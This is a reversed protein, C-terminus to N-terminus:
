NVKGEPKDIAGLLTLAEMRTMLAVLNSSCELLVKAADRQLRLIKTAMEKYEDDVLLGETRELCEAVKSWQVEVVKVCVDSILQLCVCSNDADDPNTDDKFRVAIVKLPGLDFSRM